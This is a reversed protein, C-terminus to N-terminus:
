KLVYVPTNWNPLGIPASPPWEPVDEPLEFATAVHTETPGYHNHLRRKPSRRLFDQLRDNLALAEGAQAIDTLAVLDCRQEISAECLAQIMLNPAFLENVKYTDLWSVLRNPDHRIENPPIFLTKGAILASLIEQASVDFSLATFQVIAIGASGPM